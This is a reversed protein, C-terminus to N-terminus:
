SIFDHSSDSNSMKSVIFCKGSEPFVQTNFRFTAFIANKRTKKTEICLGKRFCPLMKESWLHWIRIEWMNKGRLLTMKLFIKKVHTAERNHLPALIQKGLLEWQCNGLQFIKWLFNLRSQWWDMRRYLPKPQSRWCRCWSSVDLGYRPPLSFCCLAKQLIAIYEHM